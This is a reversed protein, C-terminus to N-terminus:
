TPWGLSCLSTGDSSTVTHHGLNTIYDRPSLSLLTLLNLYFWPSLEIPSGAEFDLHAAVSSIVKHSGKAEVCERLCTCM